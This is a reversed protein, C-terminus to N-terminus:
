DRDDRGYSERRKGFSPREQRVPAVWETPYFRMKDMKAMLHFDGLPGSRQKAVTVKVLERNEKNPRHLFIVVDADQEIAGSGRLHKLTPEDDGDRNLQSLLVVPIKLEKALSKLMRTIHQIGEAVTEAKPPQIYTLYDIVVMGLRETMNQQRARACIAEVTVGSDDCILLPMADVNAGTATIKGWEDEEMKSPTRLHLANVGGIHATARDSLQEGSMELSFFLVPTGAAVPTLASQLAFATKGVSPRAAVIVLDAPQWGGTLEDLTEYGTPLGTLDGEAEARQLLGKMASRFVEGFRRIGSGQSPVCTALIRQAEGVMDDSAGLAAIRQGAQKVRRETARRAVIAAYARANAASPTSSAIESALVALRPVADGVTVADSQGGARIIGATVEWLERLDRDGFDDGKVVDATRWYADADLLVAGVLARESDFTM